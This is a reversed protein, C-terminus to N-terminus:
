SDCFNKNNCNVFQLVLFDLTLDCTGLLDMVLFSKASTKAPVATLTGKLLVIGNDCKGSVLLKM